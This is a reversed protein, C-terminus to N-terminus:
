AQVAGVYADGTPWRVYGQVRREGPQPAVLHQEVRLVVDQNDTHLFQTLLEPQQLFMGILLPREVWSGTAMSQLRLLWQTSGDGVVNLAAGPIVALVEGAAAGDIVVQHSQTANNAHVVVRANGSFPLGTQPQQSSAPGKVAIAQAVWGENSGGLSFLSPDESSSTVLRRASLQTVLGPNSSSQVRVGDTYNSPYTPSPSQDGRDTGAAAIVLTKGAGWSFTLQPPNPQTPDNGSGLAAVGSQPPVSPDFTGALIRVVQAAGQEPAATHFDVNMAGAAAPVDRYFISQRVESGNQTSDILTYGSATAVTANGDTTLLVLLRDGAEVAPITLLKGTADQGLA